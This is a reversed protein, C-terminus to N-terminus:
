PAVPAYWLGDGPAAEGPRPAPCMPKATCTSCAWGTKAWPPSLVWPCWHLGLGFCQEGRSGPSCLVPSDLGRGRGRAGPPLWPASLHWSLLLLAQSEGCGLAVSQHFSQARSRGAWGGQDLPSPVLHQSCEQSSHASHAWLLMVAKAAAKSLLQPHGWCQTKTGFFPVWTPCVHSM